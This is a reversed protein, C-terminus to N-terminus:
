RKPYQLDPLGLIYDASVNYYVSLHKVIHCPIETEGREWRQYTTTYVNLMKAIDAQTKENDERLDRVRQYIYEM